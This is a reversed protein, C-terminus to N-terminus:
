NNVAANAEATELLGRVAALFRTESQLMPLHGAGPLTVELAGHEGFAEAARRADGASCLPDLAGRLVMTPASVRKALATGDEKSHAASRWLAAHAAVTAAYGPHARQERRAALLHETNENSPGLSFSVMRPEIRRLLWPVGLARKALGLLPGRPAFGSPAVLCLGAVRQPHEAAYQVAALAGIGHGVLVARAIGVTDLWGALIASFHAPTYAFTDPAPKASGGFGPWDFAFVRREPAFHALIPRYDEWRYDADPLVVLPARALFSRPADSMATALRQGEVMIGREAIPITTAAQASDAHPAAPEDSM